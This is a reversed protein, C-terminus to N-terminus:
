PSPPQRPQALIPRCSLLRRLRIYLTASILGLSGLGLLPQMPAWYALAGSAGVVAVVLKNCVPCGVAFASFIGGLLTSGKERARLPAAHARLYTAGILGILLASAALVPYDWWTVPTMRRYLPTPLVGTPIGMVVSTVVAVLLAILWRRGPWTRLENWLPSSSM